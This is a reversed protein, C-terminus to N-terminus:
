GCMGSNAISLTNPKTSREVSYPPRSNLPGSSESRSTAAMYSAPMPRRRGSVLWQISRSSYRAFRGSSAFYWRSPLAAIVVLSSSVAHIRSSKGFYRSSALTILFM